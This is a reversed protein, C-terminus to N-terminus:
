ETYLLKPTNCSSLVVYVKKSLDAERMMPVTTCKQLCESEVLVVIPM